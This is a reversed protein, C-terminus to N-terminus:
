RKREKREKKDKEKLSVSGIVIDNNDRCSVIGGVGTVAKERKERYEKEARM